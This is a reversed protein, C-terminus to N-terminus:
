EATDFFTTYWADLSAAVVQDNEIPTAWVYVHTDECMDRDIVEEDGDDTNVYWGDEDGDLYDEDIVGQLVDSADDKAVIRIMDGIDLEDYKAPVWRGAQAANFPAVAIHTTPKTPDHRGGQINYVPNEAKIAQTEAAALAAANPHREMTMTAAEAFFMSHRRHSQIRAFLSTSKGVYLLRGDADWWRYLIHDRAPSTTNSM